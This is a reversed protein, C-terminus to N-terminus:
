AVPVDVGLRRRKLFFGKRSLGLRRAADDIRGGTVALARRIFTREVAATAAALTQDPDLTVQLDPAAAPSPSVASETAAQRVEASLHEPTITTHDDALAAVRRIENSLQRVNGPWECRLLCQLTRDALKLHPRGHDAGHRRLFYHVLPPIDDRRERLPPVILRVANLRFFLDERFRGERVREALDANTAAIVRVDVTVPRAAGLPQVEYNELLRLLKPQTQLDLEGVEDLLLTGGDAARVLGPVNEYAGTFSGRRHGFLQSDIMDRPPGTCNFPVFDRRSRESHRHILRALVEKGTGSEGSILVPLTSAAVKRATGVLRRMAPSAFVGAEGPAPLEPPWPSPLGAEARRHAELAVLRETHSRLAHLGAQARVDDQPVAIVRLQGDAGRGCPITVRGPRRAAAVAAAASWGEHARLEPSRGDRTAVIALARACGSRRLLIFLEQALLAPHSAVHALPELDLIDPMARPGRRPIPRPTRGPLTGRVIPSVDWPRASLRSRLGSGIRREVHLYGVVGDRRADAGGIASLVRLSSEVVPRARSGPAATALLSAHARQLEALLPPPAGDAMERAEALARAALDVRNVRRCADAKLCRLSLGRPLDGCEDARTIGNECIALAEHWASDAYALRARTLFSSLVESSPPFSAQGRVADDLEALHRRCADPRARHLSIRALTDLLAVRTRTTGGPVALAEECLAESERVSGVALKAHALRAMAAVRAALHGSRTAHGLAERGHRAAAAHDAGLACADARALALLGALWLNEGAALLEEAVGLHSLATELRGQRTDIAALALHLRVHLHPHAAAVASRTCEDVLHSTGAAGLVDALHGVIDLRIWGVLEADDAANAAEVARRFRNLSRAPEGQEAAAVGLVAHCRARCDPAANSSRLVRRAASAAAAGDGTLQLVESSATLYAARSGAGATAEARELSRRASRFRGRAKQALAHDFPTPTM